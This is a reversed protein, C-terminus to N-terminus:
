LLITTLLNTSQHAITFMQVWFSFSKLVSFSRVAVLLRCRCSRDTVAYREVTRMSFVNELYAIIQTKQSFQLVDRLSRKFSDIRISTISGQIGLRFLRYLTYIIVEIWYLFPGPCVHFSFAIIIVIQQNGHSRPHVNIYHKGFFGRRLQHFHNCPIEANICFQKLKSVIRLM